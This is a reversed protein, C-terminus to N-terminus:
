SKCDTFPGFNKFIVKKNAHNADADPAVTINVTPTGNVLIYTDSYDITNYQM